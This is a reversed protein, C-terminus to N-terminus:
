PMGDLSRAVQMSVDVGMGGSVRAVTGAPAGKLTIEVQAKAPPAGSVAEALAARKAAEGDADAPREYYRSVVSGADGASGAGRLRRGAAQERGQTLEYQQFELQEDRTSQRIDHGAWAAFARQRDPHWQAIGYAKGGDGVANPRGRSERMDNAVIGAAQNHTWGHGEFLAIAHEAFSRGGRVAGDVLARGAEAGGRALDGAVKSLERGANTAGTLAGDAGKGIGAMATEALMGASKEIVGYRQKRAVADINLGASRDVEAQSLGAGSNKYDAGAARLAASGQRVAPLAGSLGVMSAALGAAQPNKQRQLADEFQELADQADILGDKTTKTKIGLQAFLALAGNNRGVQMDYLASTFGQLASTTQEASVGYREFAARNAQLNEASMGLTKSTRDIEAGVGAWKSGLAYVAAGLGVVAGIAAGVAAAAVTAGSALGGMLGEGAAAFGVAKETASAFSGAVQSSVQGVSALSRGFGDFNASMKGVKALGDVQKGLKAFGSEKSKAETRKAMGAFGREASKTGAATKDRATIDVAIKPSM